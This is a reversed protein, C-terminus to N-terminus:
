KGGEPKRVELFLNVGTPDRKIAVDQPRAASPAIARMEENGRHVLHWELFCEMQHQAPHDDVNTAVLLGGPALMGYFVKLLQECVNDTLYDFLGACYIFDYHDLRTIGDGRTAAKLLMNVSKKVTQIGTRRSHQRKLENLIGSTRALTEDNFDVLTFNARNALESGSLFRQVEVAPGCGMNFVRLSRPQGTMRLAESQLKLELYDIRNRHAVIPPLQLAYVNVMKGFLSGGEFPDRFMMAVMEHDGAYGLPKTLTRHVFPSAMLIPQVLRKGFAQHAALDDQPVQSSVEEFRQFLHSVAFVAAPQVQKLIEQHIQQQKAAPLHRFGVEVKEAWLRVDTLFTHMDAIIIKYEPLIKFSKQWNALFAKFEDLMRGNNYADVIASLDAWFPEKLEAECMVTLGSSVLNSITANGSYIAQGQFIIQFNTAVDSVCPMSAPNHLEFYVATRTMRLLAGQLEVGESTKLRVANQSGGSAPPPPPVASAPKIITQTKVTPKDSWNSLM